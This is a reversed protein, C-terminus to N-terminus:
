LTIKISTGDADDIEVLVFNKHTRRFKRLEAFLSRITKPDLDAIINFEKNKESIDLDNDKGGCEDRLNEENLINDAAYEGKPGDDHRHSRKMFHSVMGASPPSFLVASPFALFIGHKMEPSIIKIKM